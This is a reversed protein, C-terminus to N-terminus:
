TLAQLLQSLRYDTSESGPQDMGETGTPSNLQTRCEESASLRYGAVDRQTELATTATVALTEKTGLVSTENLWCPWGNLSRYRKM